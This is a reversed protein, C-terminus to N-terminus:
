EMQIMQGSLNQNYKSHVPPPHMEGRIPVGINEGFIELGLLENLSCHM